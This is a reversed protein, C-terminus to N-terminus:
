SVQQLYEGCNDLVEIALEVDDNIEVDIDNMNAVDKGWFLVDEKTFVNAEGDVYSHSQERLKYFDM